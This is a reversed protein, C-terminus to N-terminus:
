DLGWGLPHPICHCGQNWDWVMLYGPGCGGPCLGHINSVLNLDPVPFAPRHLVHWGTVRQSPRLRGVSAGESARRAPRSQNPLRM